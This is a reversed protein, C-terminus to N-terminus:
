RVSANTRSHDRTSSSRACTPRSATSRASLPIPGCCCSAVGLNEIRVVLREADETGTRRAAARVDDVGYDDGLAAAITRLVNFQALDDIPDLRLCLAQEALTLHSFRVKLALDGGAARAVKVRKAIRLHRARMATFQARTLPQRRTRNNDVFSRTEGIRVYDSNPDLVVTRLDTNHLLQELIVGTSFTKGSGSQGCM